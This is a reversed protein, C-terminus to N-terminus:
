PTQASAVIPAQPKPRMLQRIRAVYARTEAPVHDEIEEWTRVKGVRQLGQRVRYFGANYSALMLLFRDNGQFEDNWKRYLMSNYYLGAAVNWWPSYIEGLESHGTRIEKYTNPMLQMLGRAGVPSVARENLFSEAVAQAKFWRWDVFPGFFRRSYHRFLEDYEDSYADVALPPDPEPSEAQVAGTSLFLAGLLCFAGLSKRSLSSMHIGCAANDTHM